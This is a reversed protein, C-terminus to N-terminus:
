FAVAVSGKAPVTIKKGAHTGDRRIAVLTYTGAPVGSIRFGGDVVQNFFRNPVVVLDANMRKHLWCHLDVLGPKDFTVSRTEGKEYVGLNLKMTASASYVNHAINDDNPFQVTQGVVVVALDPDFKVGRQAVSIPKPVEHPLGGELWVVIEGNSVTGIVEAAAASAAVGITCVIVLICAIIFLSKSM